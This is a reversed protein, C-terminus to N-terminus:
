SKTKMRNQWSVIGKAELVSDGRKTDSSVNRINGKEFQTDNDMVSFYKDLFKVM